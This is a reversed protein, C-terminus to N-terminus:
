GDQEGEHQQRGSSCRRQQPESGFGGLLCHLLAKGPLDRCAGPQGDMLEGGACRCCLLQLAAIDQELCVACRQAARFLQRVDYLLFLCAVRQVQNQQAVTRAQLEGQLQCGARLLRNQAALLLQFEVAQNQQKHGM